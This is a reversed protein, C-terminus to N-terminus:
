DLTAQTVLHLGHSHTGLDSVKIHKPETGAAISHSRGRFIDMMRSVAGASGSSGSRSRPRGEASRDVLFPDFHNPTVPCSSQKQNQHNNPHNSSGLLNNKLASMVSKKGSRSDSTSRPRFQDLFSSASPSVRQRVYGAGSLSDENESQRRNVARHSGPGMGSILASHRVQHSLTIPHSPGSLSRMRQRNPPPELAEETQLSHSRQGTVPM